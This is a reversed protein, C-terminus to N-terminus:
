VGGSIEAAPREESRLSLAHAAFAHSASLCLAALVATKM